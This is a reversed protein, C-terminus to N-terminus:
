RRSDSVFSGGWGTLLFDKTDVWRYISDRGVSLHAAVEGINVWGEESAM